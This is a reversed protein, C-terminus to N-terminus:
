FFAYVDIFSIKYKCSSYDIEYKTKNYDYDDNECLIIEQAPCVKAMNIVGLVFIPNSVSCSNCEIEGEVNACSCGMKACARGEKILAGLLFGLILLGIIIITLILKKM